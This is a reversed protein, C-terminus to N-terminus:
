LQNMPYAGNFFSSILTGVFLLGFPLMLPSLTVQLTKRAFAYATWLIAVGLAMYLFFLVKSDLLFSEGFPLLIIPLLFATIILLGTAIRPLLEVKKEPLRFHSLFSASM